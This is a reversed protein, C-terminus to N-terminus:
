AVKSKRNISSLPAQKLRALLSQAKPVSLDSDNSSLDVVSEWTDTMKKLAHVASQFDPQAVGRSECTFV